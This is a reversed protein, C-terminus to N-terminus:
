YPTMLQDSCYILNLEHTQRHKMAMLARQRQVMLQLMLNMGLMMGLM